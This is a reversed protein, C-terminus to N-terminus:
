QEECALVLLSLFPASDDGRHQFLFHSSHRGPECSSSSVEAQRGGERGWRLPLVLGLSIQLWKKHLENNHADDNEICTVSSELLQLSQAFSLLFPAKLGEPTEAGWSSQAAHVPAAECGWCSEGRAM